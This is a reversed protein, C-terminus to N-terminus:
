PQNPLEALNMGPKWEFICGFDAIQYDV